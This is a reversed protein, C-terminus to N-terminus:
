INLLYKEPGDSLPFPFVLASIFPLLTSYETNKQGCLHASGHTEFSDSCIFIQTVDAIPNFREQRGYFHFHSRKTNIYHSFFLHFVCVIKLLIVKEELLDKTSGGYKTYIFELSRECYFLLEPMNEACRWSGVTISSPDRLLVGTKRKRLKGM